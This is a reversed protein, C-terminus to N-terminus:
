LGVMIIEKGQKKAYDITQKTGGGSGNYVAIVYDSHDVMYCNREFFVGSHYRDSIIYEDDCRSRIFQYDEKDEVSWKGDQGEFPICAVLEIGEFENRARLVAQAGMLDVGEAMGTLFRNVGREKYLWVVCRYIRERLRGKGDIDLGLKYSRHGTFCCTKM